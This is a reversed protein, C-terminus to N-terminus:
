SLWGSHQVCYAWSMAILPCVVGMLLGVALLETTALRRTGFVIANPPTSIPLCMACSASLAIPIVMQPNSSGIAVIAIPILINAAATNSLLNSFIVMLYCFSLVVAFSSFQDLPLQEVLWTSLGTDSIAVGLSLGGAILLLVDWPLHRIDEPGLTKTTTLVCIPIFSVVTSPIGHWPSTLWMGITVTFTALVLAQQAVSAEVPKNTTFLTEELPTFGSKGFYRLVLYVWGLTLLVVAVPVSYIMWQSFNVPSFDQLAGAAIANPPSGIVTGMGGINAAIAIGMLLAKAFRDSSDRMAFVPGLVALMLTTTATNSIFMSLTATTLMAGLLVWAPKKGFRGITNLALWRDLGTREAGQALVFGGFFLWILPSGWTAIFRQWDEPAETFQGDTRGLIAIELGIVLLSVAFAPMAETIWLFACFILIFLASRPADALGEYTPLYAGALGLALSVAVM